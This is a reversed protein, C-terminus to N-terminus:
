KMGDPFLRDLYAAYELERQLLVTKLDAVELKIGLVGYLEEQEESYYARMGSAADEVSTCPANGCIVPPIDSFLEKFSAYRYLAKVKVAIRENEASLNTFIIQDGPNLKRRKEDYLRLEVTKRGSRILEFPSGNLKMDYVM